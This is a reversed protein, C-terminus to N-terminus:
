SSGRQALLARTFAIFKFDPSDSDIHQFPIGPTLKWDEVQENTCQKRFGDLAWIFLRCSHKSGELVHSGEITPGLHAGQNGGFGRARYLDSQSPLCIEIEQCYSCTHAVSIATSIEGADGHML